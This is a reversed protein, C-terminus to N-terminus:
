AQVPLTPPMRRRAYGQSGRHRFAQVQELVLAVLILPVGIAGLLNLPPLSLQNIGELRAEGRVAQLADVRSDTVVVPSGAAVNIGASIASVDIGDVRVVQESRSRVGQDVETISIGDITTAAGAVIGIDAGSIRGGLVQLDPSFTRIANNGVGDAAINRLVVNKTASLAVVGDQGGNLALRDATVDGSGREVRVGTASDSVAVQNLAIEHGGISVGAISAGEITSNSMVLGRTTKEIQLGRRSGSIKMRDLNLQGSGVHTYVGIADDTSTFDSVGVDTSWSIRMGGVTNNATTIGNVRAQNQGLLALGFLKNGTATIATIPRDTPPGTVLVGNGGNNEVKIGILTTGRDGRLVLGDAISESVTVAELRANVTRDIKLGTSNRLFSTRVISVTSNQNLSLGARSGPDSPVTGLDSVLSDVADFRGGGAVVIFPRGPGVPLPAGFSQDASTVTVGRLALRGRGTYISAADSPTPGGALKVTKVDGGLNLSTQPNLVITASLQATDGAIALWDNPVFRGLTSLNLAGGSRPIQRALRGNTVLDITRTRFIIMKNPRGHSDWSARARSSAAALKAARAEAAAQAKAQQEAVQDRAAQQAAAQQRAQQEAAVDPDVPRAAPDGPPEPNPAPESAPAPGTDPGSTGEPAAPPPFSPGEPKPAEVVGAGPTAWASGAPAAVLVAATVALGVLLRRGWGPTRTSRM